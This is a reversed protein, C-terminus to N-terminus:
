PWNCVAGGVFSVALRYNTSTATSLEESFAPWALRRAQPKKAARNSAGRIFKVHWVRYFMALLSSLTWLTFQEDM